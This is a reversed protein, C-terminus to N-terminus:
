HMPRRGRRSFAALALLALGPASPIPRSALALEMQSIGGYTTEIVGAKHWIEAAGYAGTWPDMFEIWADEKYDINGNDNEDDFYFRSLSLYHGFTPAMILFEVPAGSLLSEHLFEWTPYGTECWDPQDHHTWGSVTQASYETVGPVREEIWTELGWVFNDRPTGGLVATDMYAPSGMTTVTAIMDDYFDVAGDGDLDQSQTAILNNGYYSPYENQLFVLSNTIASPGCAWQGFEPVDQQCLDGYQGFPIYSDYVAASAPLATCTILLGVPILGKRSVFNCSM